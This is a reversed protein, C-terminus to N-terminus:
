KKKAKPKPKAKKELSSCLAHATQAWKKLEQPKEHFTRPVLVWHAMQMPGAKWPEADGIQMLKRYSAEDPLKVGIRGHKWVLAFVNENVWLAHCGFM